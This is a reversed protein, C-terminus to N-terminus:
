CKATKGDRDGGMWSALRIPAYELPLREKLVVSTVDDLKRLFSPVAQWLVGEVVALGSRAEDVPTPKSRRLFDSGWISSIEARLERQLTKLEYKTLAPHDLQVLLEKIHQLKKLMTRRNVETPHATLVIEVSQKKLAAMLEGPPISKNQVLYLLGGGCSDQKPWLGFESHENLLSTRLKRIRHHNEASNALALFHAFSRALDHLTTGDCAKVRAVM